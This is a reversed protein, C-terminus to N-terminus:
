NKTETEGGDATDGADNEPELQRRAPTLTRLRVVASSGHGSAVEAATMEETEHFVLEDAHCSAYATSDGSVSPDGLSSFSRTWQYQLATTM